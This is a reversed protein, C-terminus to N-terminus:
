GGLTHLSGFWEPTEYLDRFIFGLRPHALAMQSCIFTKILSRFDIKLLSNFTAAITPLQVEFQNYYELYLFLLPREM